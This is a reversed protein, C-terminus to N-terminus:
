GLIITRAVEFHTGVSNLRGRVGVFGQARIEGGQAVGRTRDCPITLSRLGSNLSEIFGPAAM